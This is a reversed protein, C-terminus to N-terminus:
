RIVRTVPGHSIFEFIDDKNIICFDGDISHKIVGCAVATNITQQADAKQMIAYLLGGMFADGSGIRDITQPIMYEPSFVTESYHRMAARYTPVMSNGRGRFSMAITTAPLKKQLEDACHNFKEEISINAPTQIGFYIASTDIDGVIVDCCGLLRSMIESPHKGYDWLTSRYNMDASIKLGRERAVTLAELCVDAANQTLAASIGSWHFWEAGDLIKNWDLMGKQLASFSSHKRDYIVKSARISNGNESYFVGIREGSIHIHSTDVGFTSLNNAALQAVPNGPLATVFSVPVGLQSLLVAVNAEAGTFFSRFSQTHQLRQGPPCDLRHLLEGFTIVKSTPM